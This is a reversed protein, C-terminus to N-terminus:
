FIRAAEQMINKTTETVVFLTDAHINLLKTSDLEWLEIEDEPDTVSYGLSDALKEAFHTVLIHQPTTEFFQPNEHQEAVQVFARPFGWKKLLFGGIGTHFEKLALYIEDLEATIEQLAEEATKILLPMGIDHFLGGLFLQESDELKLTAALTRAAYASALSHLWLREMMNKFLKSHSQYLNKSAITTIISNTEDFGLRTVAQKVTTFTETGRYAPSNGIRILHMSIVGDREVVRTLDDITAERDAIVRQIDYVVQSLVPMVIGGLRIKNAVGGLAGRLDMAQKEIKLATTISPTTNVFTIFEEALLPDFHKGALAQIRDLADKISLAERHARIGIMAEYSDILCLIRSGLPIQDARLGDPYGSGDYFEHHHRIIPIVDKFISMPALILDAMIPHQNILAREAETLKGPKQLIEIPTYVMGIDHLLGALHARDTEKKSIGLHRCFQVCNGAVRDAHGRIYYGKHEIMGVLMRLMESYVQLTKGATKKTNEM